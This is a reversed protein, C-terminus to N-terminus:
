SACSCSSMRVYMCRECVGHRFSILLLTLSLSLTPCSTPPPPNPIPLSLSLPFALFSLLPPPPPCLRLLPQHLSLNPSAPFLSSTVPSLSLSLCVSLTGKGRLFLDMYGDFAGKYELSSLKQTLHYYSVCVDKPDRLVLVLKRRNIVFDSPLDQFQRHSALARPSPLKDIDSPERATLHHEKMDLSTLETDGTQLM